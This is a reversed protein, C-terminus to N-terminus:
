AEPEIYEKLWSTSGTTLLFCLSLFVFISSFPRSQSFTHMKTIETVRNEIFALRKERSVLSYSFIPKAIIIINVATALIMHQTNSNKIRNKDHHKDCSHLYYYYM